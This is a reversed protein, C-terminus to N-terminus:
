NVHKTGQSVEVACDISETVVLVGCRDHEIEGGEDNGYDEQVHEDGDHALCKSGDCLLLFLGTQFLLDHEDVIM